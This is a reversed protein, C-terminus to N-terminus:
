LPADFNGFHPIDEYGGYGRFAPPEEALWYTYSFRLRAPATGDPLRLNMHFPAAKGSPIFTPFDSLTEKNLVGGKEDLLRATLELDRMFAYRHNTVTGSLRIGQGTREAQWAVEGDINRFYHHAYPPNADFERRYTSCAATALLMLIAISWRVRM